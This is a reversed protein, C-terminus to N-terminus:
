KKEFKSTVQGSTLWGSKIVKQVSNIEESGLYPEFTNILKM